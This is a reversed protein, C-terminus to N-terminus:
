DLVFGMKQWLARLEVLLKRNMQLTHITVRGVQSLSLILTGTEDWQFHTDWEEQRPNFLSVLEGTQFDQVYQQSGKYRNCTPCSLCLNDLDGGGGRSKPVIHDIEFTTVTLHVPTHCYACRAGDLEYITQRLTAAVM